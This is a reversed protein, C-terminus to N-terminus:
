WPLKKGDWQYFSGSDEMRLADITAIMGRVPADVPLPASSGGM